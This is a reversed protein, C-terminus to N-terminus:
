NVVYQERISSLVPGVYLFFKHQVGHDGILVTITESSICCQAMWFSIDRSMLGISGARLHWYLIRPTMYHAYSLSYAINGLNLFSFEWRCTLSYQNASLIVNPLWRTAVYHSVLNYKAYMSSYCRVNNEVSQRSTVRIRRLRFLVPASWLIQWM